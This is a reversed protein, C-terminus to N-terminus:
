LEPKVGSDKIYKAWRAVENKYFTQTESASSFRMASGGSKALMQVMEPADMAKRVAANIRELAAGPVGSPAFVAVWATFEFNNMGLERFTPVDPMASNRAASAVALPRLRKGDVFAQAAGGDSFAYSVQKGVVDTLSQPNSKYPINSAQIGAEARFVECAVQTVANGSGCNFKGPNRKADAVLDSLSKWPASVEVYLSVPNFSLGAVGYFQEPEYGLRGPFFGFNVAHTTASGIILTYGDAKSKAAAQAGIAGNAGVKNDVIVPVNLQESMGKALVRAVLDTGSGASFPAILTVSRSPYTEQALSPPITIISTAILTATALLRSSTLRKM